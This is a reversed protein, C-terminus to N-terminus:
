TSLRGFCCPCPESEVKPAPMRRLTSLISKVVTGYPMWSPQKARACLCSNEWGQAVPKRCQWWTWSPDECGFCLNWQNESIRNTSLPAVPISKAIFSGLPRSDLRQIPELSVRHIWNLDVELNGGQGQAGLYRLMWKGGAHETPARRVSFDDGEFVARLRTELWPREEEMVKLDASGIYNLDIDVSLRPLDFLFLNLATGGKLALRSALEPIRFIANLLGILRLVKELSEPRFGTANAEQLLRDSSLKM